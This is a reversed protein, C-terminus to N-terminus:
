IFLLSSIRRTKLRRQTFISAALTIIQRLDWLRAVPIVSFGAFVLHASLAVPHRVLGASTIPRCALSHSLQRVVTGAVIM